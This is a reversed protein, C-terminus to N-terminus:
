CEVSVVGIGVRQIVGRVLEKGAEKVRAAALVCLLDVLVPPVRVQVNPVLGSKGPAILDRVYLTVASPSLGQNVPEADAGYKQGLRPLRYGQLRGRVRVAVTIGCAVAYHEM